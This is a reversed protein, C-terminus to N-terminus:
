PAAGAQSVDKGCALCVRRPCEASVSGVDAVRAHPCEDGQGPADRLLQAFYSARNASLESVQAQACQEPTMYEGPTARYGNEWAEFAQAMQQVTVTLQEM